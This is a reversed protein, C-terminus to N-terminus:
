GFCCLFVLQLQTRQAHVVVLFRLPEPHTHTPTYQAVYAVKNAKHGQAIPM